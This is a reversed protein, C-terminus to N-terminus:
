SREWKAWERVAWFAGIPMAIAVAMAFGGAVPWHKVRYLVELPVFFVCYEVVNFTVLQRLTPRTTRFIATALENGESGGKTYSAVTAKADQHQFYLFAGFLVCLVIAEIM